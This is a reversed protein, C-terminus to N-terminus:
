ILLAGRRSSAAVARARVRRAGLREVRRRSAAAGGRRDDAERVPARCRPLRHVAGQVKERSGSFRITPGKSRPTSSTTRSTSRTSSAAQCPARERRSAILGSTYFSFTGYTGLLDPTGMGSLERTAEGSPPFNAPMRVITSDIGHQELLGWFPHGRRLLEVKGASSRSSGDALGSRDAALSPEEDDLPVPGDDEPRSPRFRLHRTRRSRPRHHLQVLRGPEAAPDVHRAARLQRTAALRSFNPMRGRAMLDRTLGYDLGDFGLVIVRRGLRPHRGSCGLTAAVIRRRRRSCRHRRPLADHSVTAPSFGRRWLSRAVTWTLRRSSGSCASRRRRSTSLASAARHGRPSQLLARGARPAPRHLSRRELGQRQGRLGPWGVVGTACDWSTRYGANYGILLDPGNELYPGAYLKATDFVERIGVEGTECTAFGM